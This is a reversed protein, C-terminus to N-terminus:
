KPNESKNMESDVASQFGSLLAAYEDASLFAKIEALLFMIWDIREEAPRVKAIYEGSLQLWQTLDPDYLQSMRKGEM